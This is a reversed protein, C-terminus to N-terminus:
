PFTFEINHEGEFGPDIGIGGSADLLLFAGHVITHRNRQLSVRIPDSLSICRGDHADYIGIQVTVSQETNEKVFVYDFGLSAEGEETQRLTSSFTVGSASDVPKDTLMSYTDPMFGVYSIVVEYDNLSVSRGADRQVDNNRTAESVMFETLDDAILEFKALPRQMVINATPIENMEDAREAHIDVWGRFADRYDNSGSHSGGNSLSIKQFDSVQYYPAASDSELFDSWVMVRYDGSGLQLTFSCDYGGEALDETFCFTESPVWGPTGNICPYVQVTHRIFGKDILNRTDAVESRNDSQMWTPLDTDFTLHVEYTWKDNEVEAPWEYVSDCSVVTAILCFTALCLIYRTILKM